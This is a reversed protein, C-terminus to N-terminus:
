VEDCGLLSQDSFDSSHIFLQYLEIVLKASL